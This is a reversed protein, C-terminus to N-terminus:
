YNKSFFIMFLIGALEIVLTLYMVQVSIQKVFSSIACLSAFFLGSVWVINVNRTKIYLLIQFAFFLIIISWGMLAVDYLVYVSQFINGSYLQDWGTVNSM